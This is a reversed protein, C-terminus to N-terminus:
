ETTPEPKQRKKVVCIVTSQERPFQKESTFCAFLNISVAVTLAARGYDFWKWNLLQSVHLFM